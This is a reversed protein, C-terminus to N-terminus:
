TISRWWACASILFEHSVSSIALSYKPSHASSILLSLAWYSVIPYLGKQILMRKLSTCLQMKVLFKRITRIDCVYLHKMFLYRLYNLNVLFAVFNFVKFGLNLWVENAKKSFRLKLLAGESIISGWYKRSQRWDTPLFLSSVWNERQSHWSCTSQNNSVSGLVRPILCNAGRRAM